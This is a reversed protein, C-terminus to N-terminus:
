LDKTAVSPHLICGGGAGGGGGGGIFIALTYVIYYSKWM